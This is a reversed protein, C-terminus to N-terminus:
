WYMCADVPFGSESSSFVGTCGCPTIFPSVSTCSCCPHVSSLPVVFAPPFLLVGVSFFASSSQWM